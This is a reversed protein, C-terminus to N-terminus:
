RALFFLVMVRKTLFLNVRYFCNAYALEDDRALVSYFRLIRTGRAVLACVGGAVRTDKTAKASVGATSSRAQSMTSLM